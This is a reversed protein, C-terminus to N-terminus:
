SFYANIIHFICANWFSIQIYERAFAKGMRIDKTFFTQFVFIGDFFLIKVKHKAMPQCLSVIFTNIQPCSHFICKDSANETHGNSQKDTQQIEM